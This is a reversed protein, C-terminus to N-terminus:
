LQQRGAANHARITADLCKMKLEHLTVLGEEYQTFLDELEAMIRLIPMHGAHEAKCLHAELASRLKLTEKPDLVVKVQGNMEDEIEVVDVGDDRKLISIEAM